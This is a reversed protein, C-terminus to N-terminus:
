GHCIKVADKVGNSRCLEARDWRGILLSAPELSYVSTVRWYSLWVANNQKLQIKMVFESM